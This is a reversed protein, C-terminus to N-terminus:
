PSGVVSFVGSNLSFGEIRLFFLFFSLSGSGVSSSASIVLMRVFTPSVVVLLLSQGVSNGSIICLFASFNLALAELSLTVSLFLSSSLM